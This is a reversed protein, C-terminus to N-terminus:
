LIDRYKEPKCIFHMTWSQVLGVGGSHSMWCDQLTVEPGVMQSRLGSPLAGATGLDTAGEQEGSSKLAVSPGEHM